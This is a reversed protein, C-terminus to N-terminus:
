ASPHCLPLSLVASKRGWEGRRRRGEAPWCVNLAAKNDDDHDHHDDHDGDVEGDVERREGGVAEGM